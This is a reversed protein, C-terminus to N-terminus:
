KSSASFGSNHLLIAEHTGGLSVKTLVGRDIDMKTKGVNDDLRKWTIPSKAIVKHNLDEVTLENGKAVMRYEAPQITTGNVITSRSVRVVEVIPKNGVSNNATTRGWALPAALALIAVPLFMKYIAPHLMRVRREAPNWNILLYPEVADCLKM